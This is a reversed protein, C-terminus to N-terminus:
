SSLCLCLPYVSTGALSIYHDLFSCLLDRRRTSSHSGAAHFLCSAVSVVKEDMRLCLARPTLSVLLGQKGWVLGTVTGCIRLERPGEEPGENPDCGNTGHMVYVGKDETEQLPVPM